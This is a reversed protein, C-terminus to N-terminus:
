RWRQPAPSFDSGSSVRAAGSMSYESRPPRNKRRPQVQHKINRELHKFKKVKGEIDPGGSSQLLQASCGSGSAARRLTAEELVDEVASTAAGVAGQQCLDAQNDAPHLIILQSCGSIGSYHVLKRWTSVLHLSTRLQVRQLQNMGQVVM